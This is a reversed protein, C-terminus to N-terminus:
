RVEGESLAADIVAEWAWRSEKGELLPVADTAADEMEPTFTRMAEIAKIARQKYRDREAKPMSLWPRGDFECQSQAVREVMTTM